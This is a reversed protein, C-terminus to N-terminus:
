GLGLAKKLERSETTAEGKTANFIGTAHLQRLFKTESTNYLKPNKKLAQAILWRELFTVAKSKTSAYSYRGTATIKPLFFLVPTGHTNTCVKSYITLKHTSLAEDLLSQRSSQGVYYPTYGLGAQIAFLYCGRAAALGPMENNLTTKLLRKSQNTIIGHLHGFRKLEYPGYVEFNM